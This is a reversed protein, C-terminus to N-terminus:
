KVTFKATATPKVSGRMTTITGEALYSGAALPSPKAGEEPSFKVTYKLSKGPDLSTMTVMQTFMMGYSWRWVLEPLTKGGSTRHLIVEYKQGSAFTLTIAQKTPNALVLTFQIPEKSSYAAKNTEVTLKLLSQARPDTEPLKSDAPRSAQGSSKSPACLLCVSVMTTVTLTLALMISASPLKCM